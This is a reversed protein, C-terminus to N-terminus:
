SLIEYFPSGLTAEQGFILKVQHQHSESARGGISSVSVTLLPQWWCGALRLRTVM